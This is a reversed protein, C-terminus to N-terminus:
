SSRPLMSQLRGLVKHVARQLDNAPGFWIVSILTSIGLVVELAFVVPTPTEVARLPALALLTVGAALLSVLLGRVYPWAIDWPRCQVISRAVVAFALSRLIVAGTLIAGIAELGGGMRYATWFGLFLLTLYVSQIMIKANLRATAEALVASINTVVAFPIYIAFIRMLPVADMFQPGLMVAVIEPADVILCGAAAFILLSLSDLGLLYARRLRAPDNQVASFSPALVRTLSSAFNTAPVTLTNYTRAYLGLAAKPYFKSLFFTDLSVSILELFNVVTARTGFSYLNRYHAPNFTFRIPHRSFGNLIVSQILTQATASVVLSMAGFGLYASGLGMLGHGLIYGSLDAIAIPRFRLQRRLLSNAVVNGGILIYITAFGRIVPVLDPSNFYRGALPAISWALITALGGLILSSTLAAAVDSDKLTEKQVIAQGVGFDAIFQGFRQLLMATAVIGFQERTLLRSLIAAFIVQLLASTVMSFYSWKIANVTRSKLNKDREAEHILDPAPQAAESPSTM